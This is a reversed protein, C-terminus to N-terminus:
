ERSLRSQFDSYLCSHLMAPGLAFINRVLDSFFNTLLHRLSWSTSTLLSSYYSYSSSFSTEASSDETVLSSSVVSYSSIGVIAVKAVAAAAVAVSMPPAVLLAGVPEPPGNSVMSHFVVAVVPAVLVAAGVVTWPVAVTGAASFDFSVAAVVPALLVAAVVVTWPVAVQGQQQFILRSQLM